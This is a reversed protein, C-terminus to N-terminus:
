RCASSLRSRLQSRAAQLESDSYYIRTGAADERYFRGGQELQALSDRDSSCAKQREALRKAEVAELAQQEERRAAFFRESRAERELTHADREIVQPEVELRASGPVPRDSFHVQGAADTWRYIEASALAPLCLVLLLLLQM